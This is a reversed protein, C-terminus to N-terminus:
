PLSSKKAAERAEKEAKEEEQEAVREEHAVARAQLRATRALWQMADQVVYPRLKDTTHGGPVALLHVREFKAAFAVNMAPPVVQDGRGQVVLLPSEAPRRFPSLRYRDALTLGVEEDYNPGYTALPWEWSVLDSVPAKAVAASVLGEGSLLAALTGGASSGYAFVNEVGVKERLEKAAARAALVAAPVNGLPYTVYHTVFGAAQAPENTTPEFEPDEFLFSGGHFLLLQPKPGPPEVKGSGGGVGGHPTAAGAPAALVLALAAVALIAALGRRRKSQSDIGRCGPNMAYTDARDASKV